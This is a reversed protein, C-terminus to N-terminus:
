FKNLNAVPFSFIQMPLPTGDLYKILLEKAEELDSCFYAPSGKGWFAIHRRYQNAYEPKITINDRLTLKTLPKKFEIYLRHYCRYNYTNDEVHEHYWKPELLEFDPMKDNDSNYIKFLNQLYPTRAKEREHRIFDLEPYNKYVWKCFALHLDAEEHKSKARPKVEEGRLIKANRKGYLLNEKEEDSRLHLPIYTM